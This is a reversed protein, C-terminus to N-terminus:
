ILELLAKDELAIGTYVREMGFLFGASNMIDGWGPDGFYLAYDKYKECIEHVKSYDFDAPSPMPWNEVENEGADKLPFDCYDWYGGSEHEIWRSHVGTVSNIVIGEKQETFLKKGIYPLRFGRFDVGLSKLLGEKDGEKLGFYTYLRKLLGANSQFNIPVRDAEGNAFTELVRERSTMKDKEPLANMSLAGM